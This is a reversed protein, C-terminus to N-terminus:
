LIINAPGFNSYSEKSVARLHDVDHVLGAKVELGPHLDLCVRGVAFIVPEIQAVQELVGPVDTKAASLRSHSKHQGEHRSM